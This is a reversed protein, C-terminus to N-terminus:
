VVVIVQAIVPQQVNAAAEPPKRGREVDVRLRLTRPMKLGADALEAAVLRRDLSGKLGGREEIDVLGVGSGNEAAHNGHDVTSPTLSAAFRPQTAGLDRVIRQSELM